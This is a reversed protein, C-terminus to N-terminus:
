ELRTQEQDCYVASDAAGGKRALFRGHERCLRQIIMAEIETGAAQARPDLHLEEVSDAQVFVVETKRTALINGIVLSHGYKRLAKQAKEVLLSPDTELQLACLNPPSKGQGVKFSILFATPVVTNVLRDLIKTVVSM